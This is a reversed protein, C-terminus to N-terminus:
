SGLDAGSRRAAPLIPAHEGVEGEGDREGGADVPHYEAARGGGVERREHAQEGVVGHAGRAAVPRIRVVGVEVAAGECADEGVGRVVEEHRGVRVARDDARQLEREDGAHGAAAARAQLHLGHAHPAVQARGADAAGRHAVSASIERRRRSGSPVTFSETLEIRRVM